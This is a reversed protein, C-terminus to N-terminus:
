VAEALLACALALEVKSILKERQTRSILGLIDKPPRKSDLEFTTRKKFLIELNAFCFLVLSLVCQLRPYFSGGFVDDYSLQRRTRFPKRAKQKERPQKQHASPLIAM